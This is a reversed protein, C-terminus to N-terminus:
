VNLDRPPLEVRRLDINLVGGAVRFVRQIGLKQESLSSGCKPCRTTFEGSYYRSPGKCNCFGSM